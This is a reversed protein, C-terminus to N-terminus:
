EDKPPHRLTLQEDEVDLTDDALLELVQADLVLVIRGDHEFATDGDREQDPKLAISDAELVFRVAIDAPAGQSNLMKAIHACATDTVTFM